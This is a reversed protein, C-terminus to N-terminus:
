RQPCKIAASIEKGYEDAITKCVMAALLEMIYEYKSQAMKIRWGNLKQILLVFTREPSPKTWFIATQANNEIIKSWFNVFFYESFNYNM